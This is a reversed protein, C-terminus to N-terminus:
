KEWWNKGAREKGDIIEQKNNGALEMGAREKYCIRERENKGV